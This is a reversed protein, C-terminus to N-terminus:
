LAKKLPSVLSNRQLEITSVLTWVLHERKEGRRLPERGMAPIVVTFRPFSISNCDFCVCLWNLEGWTVFCKSHHLLAKIVLLSPKNVFITVKITFALLDKYVNAITPLLPLNESRVSFEILSFINRILRLGAMNFRILECVNTYIWWQKIWQKSSPSTSKTPM